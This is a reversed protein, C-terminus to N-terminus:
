GFRRRKVYKEYLDTRATIMSFSSLMISKVVSHVDTSVASCAAINWPHFDSKPLTMSHEETRWHIDLWPHAGKVAPTVHSLSSQQHLWVSPTPGDQFLECITNIQSFQSPLELRFCNKPFLFSIPMLVLSYSLLHTRDVTGLVDQHINLNTWLSPWWAM